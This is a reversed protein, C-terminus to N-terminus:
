PVPIPISSINGSFKLKLVYSQTKKRRSQSKTDHSPFDRLFAVEAKMAQRNKLNEFKRLAFITCFLTIADIRRFVRPQLFINSCIIIKGQSEVNRFNDMLPFSFVNERTLYNDGM